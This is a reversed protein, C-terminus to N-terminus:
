ELEGLIEHARARAIGSLVPARYVESKARKVPCKELECVFDLQKIFERGAEPDREAIAGALSPLGGRGVVNCM